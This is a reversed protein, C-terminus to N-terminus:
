YHYSWFVLVANILLLNIFSSCSILIIFDLYSTYAFHTPLLM